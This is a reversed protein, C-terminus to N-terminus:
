SKIKTKFYGRFYYTNNLPKKTPETITETFETDIYGSLSKATNYDEQNFILKSKVIRYTKKQGAVVDAYILKPEFCYKNNQIYIHYENAYAPLGDAFNLSIIGTKNKVAYCYKLTYGGQVNTKCNATFYLHLTDTKSIKNGFTNEFKDGAQKIVYWPYAWKEIFSFNTKATKGIMVPFYAKSQPNAVLATILLLNLNILFKM